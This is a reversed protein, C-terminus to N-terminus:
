RRWAIWKSGAAAAVNALNGTRHASTLAASTKLAYPLCPIIIDIVDAASSADVDSENPDLTKAFSLLLPTMAHQDVPREAESRSFDAVNTQKKHRPSRKDSCPEVRCRTYAATGHQM